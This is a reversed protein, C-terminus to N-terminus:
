RMEALKIWWSIDWTRRAAGSPSPLVYIRTQEIKEDQQGYAITKTGFYVKAAQKSTFALWRPAYHRIKTQLDSPAYDTPAIASDVGVAFKALDTLGIGDHLAQRFETPQLLRSTFGIQYLTPWFRNGIGAYYAGVQASRNGAATGCFVVALGSELVDPLIM